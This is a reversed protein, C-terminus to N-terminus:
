LAISDRKGRRLRKWITSAAIQTVYVSQEGNKECLVFSKPLDEAVTTIRGKKETQRLFDKTRQSVTTTDLDFIGVLENDRIVINRGLHLYM